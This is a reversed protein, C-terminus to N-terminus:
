NMGCQVKCMKKAADWMEGKPCIDCVGNILSYGDACVCIGSELIENQGCRPRCTNALIDYVSGSECKACVGDVIYFGIACGCYDGTYLENEGCPVRCKNYNTDFFQGTPCECKETEKNYIQGNPCEVALCEGESLYYGAPCETLCKGNLYAVFGGCAGCQKFISLVLYSVSIHNIECNPKTPGIELFFNKNMYTFLSIPANVNIEFSNVGVIYTRLEDM